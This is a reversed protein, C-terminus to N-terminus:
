VWCPLASAAVHLQKSSIIGTALGSGSSAWAPREPLRAYLETLRVVDAEFWDRLWARYGAALRPAIATQRLAQIVAQGTLMGSMLARLVGHSSAPDLVAAADGAVFYGLGAAPALRWTVDAGRPGGQRRLGRFELPVWHEAPARGSFSLRTWHYLGPRVRATWTWGAADAVIAPAADRTPCSGRVYGYWATLRPGYSRTALRLQRVLWRSRGTADVVYAARLDGGSCHIGAVRGGVLLV